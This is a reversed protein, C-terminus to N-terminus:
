LLKEIKLKVAEEKLKNREEAQDLLIKQRNISDQINRQTSSSKDQQQEEKQNEDKYSHILFDIQEQRKRMEDQTAMLEEFNQRMEEEQQRLQQASKQSKVLLTRTEENTKINLITTATDQAVQMIFNREFDEFMNLSAIEVVGVANEGVIMPVIFVCKPRIQGLGSSINAYDAPIDTLYTPAKEFFTQGVLGEGVQLEQSLYRHKGYAYAGAGKLSQTENEFLFIAGQNANVYKVLESVLAKVLEDLNQNRERLLDGFYAFGTNQWNRQAEEKAINELSDRMALLSKGLIDKESRVIFNSTYNKQGINQAFNAVNQMNTTLDNLASDIKGLEDQYFKDTLKPFSGESLLTIKTQIKRMPASLQNALIAGIFTIIIFIGIAIFLLQSRFSFATEFIEVGDMETMIGWRVGLIDIPLYVDLVENGLFDINKEKGEKGNIADITAKAKYERFMVTTRLRYIKLRTLSDVKTKLAESYGAPDELSRRTSNRLKFDSGVLFTEGSTGLGDEQWKQNNTLIETIKENRIQLLITGIKKTNDKDYVATGIWATPAFHAPVYFEYDQFFVNQDDRGQMIRKHLRAVHTDKFTGYVFNDGFDIRKAVSYLVDGKEGVLLVDGVNFKQAFKLFVNHYIAHHKDYNDDIDSKVLVSKFGEPQPNKALYKAQLAIRFYANPMFNTTQKQATNFELTKLFDQEYFNKLSKIADLSDIKSKERFSFQFDRIAQRTQALEALFTNQNKVEQFYAEIAKKKNKTINFLLDFSRETLLERGQTYGFYGMVSLTVTSVLSLAIQFKYFLKLDKLKENIYQWINM